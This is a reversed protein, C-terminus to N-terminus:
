GERQTPSHPPNASITVRTAVTANSPISARATSTWTWTVGAADGEDQDTQRVLRHRLASLPHPGRQDGRPKGQRGLADGDIEGRRVQGLFAEKQGIAARIRVRQLTHHRAREPSQARM